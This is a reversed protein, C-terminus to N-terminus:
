SGINKNSCLEWYGLVSPPILVKCHHCADSPANHSCALGGCVHLVYWYVCNSNFVSTGDYKVIGWDEDLPMLTSRWHGLTPAVLSM